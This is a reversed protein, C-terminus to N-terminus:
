WVGWTGLTNESIIPRPRSPSRVERGGAGVCGENWSYREGSRRTRGVSGASDYKSITEFGYDM